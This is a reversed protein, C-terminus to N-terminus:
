AIMAKARGINVERELATEIPPTVWSIIKEETFYVKVAVTGGIVIILTLALLTIVIKKFM